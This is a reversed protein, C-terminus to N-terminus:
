TYFVGDEKKGCEIIIDPMDLRHKYIIFIFDDEVDKSYFKLYDEVHYISDGIFAEDFSNMYSCVCYYYYEPCFNNDNTIM